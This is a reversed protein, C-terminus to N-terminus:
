AGLLELGLHSRVDDALPVAANRIQEPFDEIEELKQRMLTVDFADTENAAREVIKLLEEVSSFGTATAFLRAGAATASFELHAVQVNRWLDALFDSVAGDTQFTRAIEFKQAFEEVTALM